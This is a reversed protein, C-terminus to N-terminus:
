LIHARVNIVQATSVEMENTEGMVVALDWDITESLPLFSQQVDLVKSEQIIVPVTGYSLAGM